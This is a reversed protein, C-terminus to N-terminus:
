IVSQVFGRLAQGGYYIVFAKYGFGVFGVVLYVQLFSFISDSSFVRRRLFQLQFEKGSGRLQLVFEVVEDGLVRVFYLREVYIGDDAFVEGAEGVLQVFQLVRQSVVVDAIVVKFFYVFVRVRIVFWFRGGICTYVYIFLFCICMYQYYVCVRVGCM